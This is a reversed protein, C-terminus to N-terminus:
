WGSDLATDLQFINDRLKKLFCAILYLPQVELFQESSMLEIDNSHIFNLHFFYLGNYHPQVELFQESSM